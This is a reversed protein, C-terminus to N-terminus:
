IGEELIKEIDALWSLAEAPGIFDEFSTAGLRRVQEVFPGFFSDRGLTQAMRELLDIKYVTKASSKTQWLQVRPRGQRPLM